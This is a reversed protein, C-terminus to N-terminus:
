PTQKTEFLAAEKGCLQSNGRMTECMRFRDAIDTEVGTVVDHSPARKSELSVKHTCLYSTGLDSSLAFHWKCNICFKMSM